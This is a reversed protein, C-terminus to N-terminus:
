RKNKGEFLANFSLREETSFSKELYQGMKQTRESFSMQVEPAVEAVQEEPISIPAVGGPPFVEEAVEEAPPREVVEMPPAGIPSLPAEYPPVEEERAEEPPARVTPLDPMPIRMNRTFIDRLSPSIDEDNPRVLLMDPGMLEREKRLMAIHTSPAVRLERMLEEPNEILERMAESSLQTRRDIAVFKRKERERPTLPPLEPAEVTTRLETPAAEPTPLISEELSPRLGVFEEEPPPAEVAEPTKLQLLDPEERIVDEERPLQVGMEDAIGDIDVQSLPIVEEPVMVPRETEALTVRIEQKRAQNLTLLEREEPLADFSIAQPLTIELEGEFATEPLTIAHVNAVAEDMDVVGPRFAMKIKVLAESCDTYLFYVKKSYIRAVGLLLHSQLRLAMPAGPNIIKEVTEPINTEKIQAKTLKKEWHAALWVKGLPGKKALVLQEYFM